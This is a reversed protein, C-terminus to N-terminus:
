LMPLVGGDSPDPDGRRVRLVDRGTTTSHKVISKTCLTIDIVEERVSNRFTPMTGTNLIDLDTTILYYDM